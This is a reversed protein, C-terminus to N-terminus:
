ASMVPMIGEDFGALGPHVLDSRDISSAMGLLTKLRRM